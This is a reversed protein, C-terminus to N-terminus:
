ATLAVRQQHRRDDDADDVDRVHGLRDAALHELRRSFSNTSAARAWPAPCRQPDHEALDQGFRAEVIMTKMGSIM